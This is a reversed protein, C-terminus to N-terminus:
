VQAGDGGGGQAEPATVLARAWALEASYNAWFDDLADSWEYLCASLFLSWTPGDAVSFGHGSPYGLRAALAPTVSAVVDAIRADTSADDWTVNLKRRVAAMADDTAM